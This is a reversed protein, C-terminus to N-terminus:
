RAVMLRWLAVMPVIELTCFYLLLHLFGGRYTFFTSYCKMFLSFRSVAIVLILAIIYVTPPLVFFVEILLIPLLILGMLFTCRTRAQVWQAHQWRAFFVSDIFQYLAARLLYWGATLGAGRLLMGYPSFDASTTSNNACFLCVNALSILLCLHIHLVRNDGVGEIDADDTPIAPRPWMDYLFAAWARVIFGWARVSLWVTAFVSVMLLITVADDTRPTWPVLEGALVPQATHTYLSNTNQGDVKTRALMAATDARSLSDAAKVSPSLPAPM